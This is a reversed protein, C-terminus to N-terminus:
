NVMIIKITKLLILQRLNKIKILLCIDSERHYKFPRFFMKATLTDICNEVHDVVHNLLKSNNLWNLPQILSVFKSTLNYSAELFAFHIQENNGNKTLQYPPNGVIADFKMREGEKGWVAPNAIKRVVWKMDNQMHELLHAQYHTNTKAETFGALTRQTIARAMTTKCLVFLNDKLVENWIASQEELTMDEEKKPLRKRYLSYAIYLPYLGSKSNIELIKSNKNDFLEATVKGQNVYRPEELPENADFRENLFCYGGVTDSMHMNVVRWPTLVTEKDPNRFHSIIETIRKIRETPPYEDAQKTLRRIRLGAAMLVDEDFYKISRKFLDKDVDQPMFEKWSEEDVIEIFKALPLGETIPVGAGYIFLPLRISINRLLAFFAQQQKRQAKLKELAEIEEPTLNKKPKHEARRAKEYEEASLGNEAITIKTERKSKAHASLRAKLAEFFKKDNEDMVIGADVKYVSDDEFGSKIAADISIRKIQRMLSNVNYPEMKTGEIAIVSCYNMFESLMTKYKDDSTKGKNSLRHYDSIVRLARDPAFDFVYCNDKQKGDIQGASQVRFITQMYGKADTTASGTLMMVATWEPVTVGTTLKGCSITITYDNAKIADQVLKLANDYPMEEDDGEGAVNVVKYHMFVSHSKLVASLAAAEKVGPVMWFTHKFEKRFEDTAFPYKTDNSETTILNLFARVDDEHVFDGKKKGEPIPRFDKETEGTWVRFFERFNFATTETEYRYSTPIAKSMDFTFINMKPMDAYPNIEDPHKKNWKEKERQEMVYDWTYVNDEYKDMINYPTGSLELVKPKKGDKATELLTQVTQGLDTQTGEHAEDYIILDWDMAFVAKNKDYKGGALQSGRLDQMSAFYTFYDGRAKASKLANDNKIDSSYDYYDLSYSLNQKKMFVHKSNKGFVKKHDTEWGQEVVPRHTVVITKQYNGSKILDYATVTKGFRMKCNWLMKDYNKNFIDLTNDVALKQEDRLKIEPVPPEAGKDCEAM